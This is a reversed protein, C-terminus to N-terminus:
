CTDESIVAGVEPILRVDTFHMGYGDSTKAAKFSIINSGQELKISESYFNIEYDTAPSKEFIKKGNLSVVLGCTLKRNQTAAYRFSFTAITEKKVTVIQYISDNDKGDIEIVIEKNWRKNYIKGQGVEIEDTTKWGKINNTFTYGDEGLIVDTFQGNVILNNTSVLTTTAIGAKAATNTVKPAPTSILTTVADALTATPAATTTVKASKALAPAATLVAKTTKALTVTPVGDALALTQEPVALSTTMVKLQQNLSITFTLLCTILLSTTIKM